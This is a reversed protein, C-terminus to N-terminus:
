WWHRHRYIRVGFYPYPRYAYAYPQYYAGYAYGPYSYRPYYYPRPYFYASPYYGGGWYGLYAGGWGGYYGFGLRGYYRAELVDAAKAAASIATSFPLPGATSSGINSLTAAITVAIACSISKKMAKAKEQQATESHCTVKGGVTSGIGTLWAAARPLASCQHVDFFTPVSLLQAISM